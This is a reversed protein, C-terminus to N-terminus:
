GGLKTLMLTNLLRLTECPACECKCLWTEDAPLIDVLSVNKVVRWRLPECREVWMAVLKADYASAAPPRVAALTRIAPMECREIKFFKGIKRMAAWCRVGTKADSFCQKRMALSKPTHSEFRRACRLQMARNPGSLVGGVRFSQLLCIHDM